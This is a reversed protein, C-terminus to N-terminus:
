NVRFTTKSLRPYRPQSHTSTFDLLVGRVMPILRGSGRGLELNRYCLVLGGLGEWRLSAMRLGDRGLWGSEWGVVEEVGYGIV